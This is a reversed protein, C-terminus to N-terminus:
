EQERTKGQASNSLKAAYTSLAIFNENSGSAVTCILISEGKRLLIRQKVQLELDRLTLFDVESTLLLSSGEEIYHAARLKILGPSLYLIEVPLSKTRLPKRRTGATVAAPLLTNVSFLARLKEVQEPAVDVLQMMQTTSLYVRGRFVAIVKEGLMWHIEASAGLPILPVFEGSFNLANDDAAPSAQGYERIGNYEARLLAPFAYYDM